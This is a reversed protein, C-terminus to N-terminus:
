KILEATLTELADKGLLQAEIFRDLDAAGLSGYATTQVVFQEIKTRYYIRPLFPNAGEAPQIDYSVFTYDCCTSTDRCVEYIGGLDFIEERYVSRGEKIEKDSVKRLELM